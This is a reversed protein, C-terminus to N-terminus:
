RSERERGNERSRMDRPHPADPVTAQPVDSPQAPQAAPTAQAQQQQAPQPQSPQSPQAQQPPAIGSRSGIAADNAASQALMRDLPLNIQNSGSKTDIVIKSTSSLIQQMTDIYMRDRTVGPAKAYEAVVQDFHAASGTAEDVVKTRYTEADKMLNAARERARPLIEDAFAQAQSRERASDEQAKAVAEFAGAVGDPAAISQMTVGVIDAGLQYRDALAQIRTRADPPLKDRGENLVADLKAAGVLQRLVTEAADRVTEVQGRDNFVWAAPDKIRYQVSFQVDVLNGDATPMLSEAPQRNRTNARYGVEAVQTRGTDVITHAEFPAPWSWNFGADAVRSFKGFTTIVGVQGDQVIFAGSALWILAAIAGVTAISLKLGRANPRYPGGGGEGRKGLLRNLRANFDRWLEALEPPGDDDNGGNPRRGEQAKREDAPRHGWRPDNLNFKLNYKLGHDARASDALRVRLRQLLSVPM